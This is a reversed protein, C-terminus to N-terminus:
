KKESFLRLSREIDAEKFYMGSPKGDAFRGQMYQISLSLADLITIGPNKVLIDRLYKLQKEQSETIM